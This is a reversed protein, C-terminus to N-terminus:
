YDLDIDTYDNLASFPAPLGLLANMLMLEDDGHNLMPAPKILKGTEGKALVFRPSDHHKSRIAEFSSKDDTATLDVKGYCTCVYSRELESEAYVATGRIGITATTTTTTHQENGERKGFVSMLKGKLLQAGTEIQQADASLIVESNERLLHADKGVVFILQSDDSTEIVANAPVITKESALEGNVRVKGRLRFISEGEGMPKPVKGLAYVLQSFALNSLTGVGAVAILKKLLQRRAMTTHVVSEM